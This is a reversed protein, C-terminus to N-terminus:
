QSKICRITYIGALYFSISMTFFGVPLIKKNSTKVERPDALRFHKPNFRQQPLPNISKINRFKIEQHVNPDDFVVNQCVFDGKDSKFYDWEVNMIEKDFPALPRTTLNKPKFGQEAYLVITGERYAIDKMQLSFNLKWETGFKGQNETIQRIVFSKDQFVSLMSLGRMFYNNSDFDYRYFDMIVPDPKSQFDVLIFRDGAKKQTTKFFSNGDFVTEIRHTLFDDNPRLKQDILTLNFRRNDQVFEFNRTRLEKKNKGKGLTQSEFEGMICTDINKRKQMELIITAKTNKLKESQTDQAIVQMNTFIILINLYFPLITCRM